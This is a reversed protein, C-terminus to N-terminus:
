GIDTFKKTGDPNTRTGGLQRFRTILETAAAQMRHNEADSIPDGDVDLTLWEAGNDFAAYQLEMAMGHYIKRKWDKRTM